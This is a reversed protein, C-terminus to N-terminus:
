TLWVDDHLFSKVIHTELHLDPLIVEMERRKWWNPGTMTLSKWFRKWNGGEWKLLLQENQGYNDFEDYVFKYEFTKVRLHKPPDEPNPFPNYSLVGHM